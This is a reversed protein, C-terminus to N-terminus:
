YNASGNEKRRGQDKLNINGLNFNVYGIIVRKKANAVMRRKKEAMNSSAKM